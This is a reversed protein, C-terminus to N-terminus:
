ANYIQNLKLLTYKLVKGSPETLGAPVLIDETYKIQFGKVAQLTIQGFYGTCLQTSPFCNELKLAEQLAKVEPGRDGLRMFTKFEHNFAPKLSSDTYTYATFVYPIHSVDLWQWGDEGVKNGWSNKVGIFKKDDILKAKGAFLWHYWKNSDMPTTPAEPFASYWTGNNEGCLGIIIGKNDRIAQAFSDLNRSVYTRAGVISKLADVIAEDGIDEERQMFAEDPKKGKNYSVCLPEDCAGDDIVRKSLDPETSGGDPYAIPAYIFKASKESYKDENCGVLYSLAQGGCSGSRGQDKTPIKGVEEEVDYGVTWDFPQTDRAIERMLPVSEDKPTWIGGKFLEEENM